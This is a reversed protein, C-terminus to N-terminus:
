YILRQSTFQRIPTLCTRVSCLPACRRWCNPRGCGHWCLAYREQKMVV